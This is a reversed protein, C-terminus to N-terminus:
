RLAKLGEALRLLDAILTQLTQEHVETPELVGGVIQDDIMRISVDPRARVLGLTTIVPQLAAASRGGGGFNGYNVFGIPKRFWEAYLYDFANKVSAVFSGNYEPNVLIFGDAAGVRAAWARTHEHEYKGAAAPITEDYFPLAIERLDAWDIEVGDVAALRERVWQAVATGKRVPRVSGVIIMIRTM